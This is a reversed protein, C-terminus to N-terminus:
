KKKVLHQGWGAFILLVIKICHALNQGRWLKQSERRIDRAARLRLRPFEPIKTAAGSVPM